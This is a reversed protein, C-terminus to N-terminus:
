QGFWLLCAMNQVDHEPLLGFSPDTSTRLGLPALSGDLDGASQVPDEEEGDYLEGLLASSGLAAAGIAGSRFLSLVVPNDPLRSLLEAERERALGLSRPELSKLSTLAM